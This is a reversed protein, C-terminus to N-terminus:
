INRLVVCKRPGGLGYVSQKTNVITSGWGGLCNVMLGGERESSNIGGLTARLDDAMKGLVTFRDISFLEGFRKNM